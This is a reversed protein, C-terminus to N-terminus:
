RRKGAPGAERWAAGQAPRPGEVANNSVDDLSSLASSSSSSSSALSPPGLGAAAAVGGGGDGADPQPRREASPPLPGSESQYRWMMTGLRSVMLLGMAYWVGPLGLELPEVGLLLAAATGGALVM